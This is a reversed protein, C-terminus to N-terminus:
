RRGVVRLRHEAPSPRGARCAHWVRRYLEALDQEAPASAGTRHLADLWRKVRQLVEVLAM